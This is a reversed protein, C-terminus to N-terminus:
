RHIIHALMKLASELATFANALNFFPRSNLSVTGQQLQIDDIWLTAGPTVSYIYLYPKNADLACTASYRQVIDLPHDFGLPLEHRGNGVAYGVFHERQNVHGERFLQVLVHQWAHASSVVYPGATIEAAM